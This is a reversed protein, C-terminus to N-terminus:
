HNDIVNIINIRFLITLVHRFEDNIDIEFLSGDNWIGLTDRTTLYTLKKTRKFYVMRQFQNIIISCNEDRNFSIVFKKFKDLSTTNKFNGITYIKLYCKFKCAGIAFSTEFTTYKFIRKGSTGITVISVNPNVVKDPYHNLKRVKKPASPQDNSRHARKPSIYSSRLIVPPNEEHAAANFEGLLCRNTPVNEM